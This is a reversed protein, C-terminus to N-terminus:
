WIWINPMSIIMHVTSQGILINLM